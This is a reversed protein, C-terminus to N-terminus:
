YYYYYYLIHKTRADSCTLMELHLSSLCADLWSGCQWQQLNVWVWRFWRHGTWLVARGYAVWHSTQRGTMHRSPPPLHTQPRLVRLLGPVYVSVYVCVCHVCVCTYVCQSCLVCVSDITLLKMIVNRFLAHIVWMMSMYLYIYSNYRITKFLNIPVRVVQVCTARLLAMLLIQSYGMFICLYTCLIHVCVCM